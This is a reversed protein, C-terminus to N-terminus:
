PARGRRAQPGRRPRRRWCATHWHRREQLGPGTAPWAVVHATGPRIEQDCGPCRYQKVAAAGPVHRVVWDGDPWEELRPPGLVAPGGGAAGEAGGAGPGDQGAASWAGAPRGTRRPRRPQDPPLRRARRPSM